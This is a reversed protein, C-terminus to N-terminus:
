SGGTKIRFSFKHGTKPIQAYAMALARVHGRVSVPDYQQLCIPCQQPDCRPAGLDVTVATQCHACEISLYRLDEFPVVNENLMYM